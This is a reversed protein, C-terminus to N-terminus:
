LKAGKADSLLSLDEVQADRWMKLLPSYMHDDNHYEVQMVLLPAPQHKFFLGHPPLLHARFRTRGTLDSRAM